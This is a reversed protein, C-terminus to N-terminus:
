CRPTTTAYITFAPKRPYGLLTPPAAGFRIGSGVERSRSALRMRLCSATWNFLIFALVIGSTAMGALGKRIMERADANSPKDDQAATAPLPSAPTTTRLEAAKPASTRIPGSDTMWRMKIRSGCIRCKSEGHELPHGEECIAQSTPPEPSDAALPQDSSPETKPATSDTKMWQMKIRAGCEACRTEGPALPHNNDCVASM